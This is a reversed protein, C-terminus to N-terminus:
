SDWSCGRLRLGPGARPGVPPRVPRASPSCTTAARWCRASCSPTVCRGFQPTQHHQSRGNSWGLCSAANSALGGEGLGWSVTDVTPVVIRSFPVDPNCVYEGELTDMWRVWGGRGGAGGGAEFVWEYVDAGEPPLAAAGGGALAAAAPFEAERSPLAAAAARLHRDFAERGDKNCSAGVSWTLAFVFLAALTSPLAAVDEASLPPTDALGRPTPAHSTLSWANPQLHM